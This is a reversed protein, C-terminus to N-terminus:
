GDDSSDPGKVRLGGGLLELFEALRIIGARSGFFVYSGTFIVFSLGMTVLDDGASVTFGYSITAALGCTIAVSLFYSVPLIDRYRIGLDRVTVYLLMYVHFWTAVVTAIAPGIFGVHMALLINLVFNALLSALASWFIIRSQGLALVIVGYSAIRLPMMFLYIRFPLVAGEFGEGFVLPILHDAFLFLYVFVPWVIKSSFKMTNSALRTFAAYDEKHHLSNLVPSVVSFISSVIVGIFPIEMAGVFFVGLAETGFFVSVVFKDLWRSVIDITSTLMIPFSFSLQLLLTNRGGRFRLDGLVQRMRLLFVLTLLLKVSGFVAMAFFLDAATVGATYFWITVGLFFAAHLSNLVFLYRVRQFTIFVPDAFSSAVLFAGYIGFIRLEKVIDPNHQMRAFFPAGAWFLAVCFLAAGVLVTLTQGLFRGREHEKLRPLFFYMTEPVGLTLILFLASFIFVQQFSGFQEAGMRRALGINLLLVSGVYLSRCFGVAGARGGM